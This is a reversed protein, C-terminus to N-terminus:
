GFMGGFYLCLIMVYVLAVLTVAEQNTVGRRRRM